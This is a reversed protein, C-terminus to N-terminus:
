LCSVSSIRHFLSHHMKVKGSFDKFMVVKVVGANVGVAACLITDNSACMIFGKREINACIRWTAVGFAKKFYIFLYGFNHKAVIKVQM